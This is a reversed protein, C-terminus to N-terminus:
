LDFRDAFDCTKSTFEFLLTTILFPQANSFSLLAIFIFSLFAISFSFTILCDFIIQPKVFVIFNLEIVFHNNAVASFFYNSFAAEEVIDIHSHPMSAAFLHSILWFAIHLGEIVVLFIFICDLISQYYCWRLHYAQLDEHHCYFFELLSARLCIIWTLVRQNQLIFKM